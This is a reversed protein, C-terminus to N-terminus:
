AAWRDPAPPAEVVFSGPAATAERLLDALLRDCLRGLHGAARRGPPEGRDLSVEVGREARMEGALPLGLARAIESGGLGQPSPGRVVVRLDRCALGASSAVRSAAAAARVEAPVVLLTTTAAKLALLGAADPRRPVDVVVVDHAWRGAALVSEMAEPGASHTDGRDWSLVAVGSMQPLASALAHAPLRGRTASLDPWRLGNDSEGGLVLDIGGGLPDADVLLARRGQRLAALSLGCALTTSGAGGRGGIVAILPAKTGAGGGAADALAAALWEEADPLFVVHQAGLEVARQWVSADDLDDGVLVVGNRRPFRMRVAAEVQDAGVVVFPADSWSRRATAAEACVELEADGALRLLDDLLLPDGTVALARPAPAPM